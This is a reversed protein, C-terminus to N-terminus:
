NGHYRSYCPKKFKESGLKFFTECNVRQCYANNISIMKTDNDGRGVALTSLAAGRNKKHHVSWVHAHAHLRKQYSFGDKSAAPPFCCSKVRIGAQM